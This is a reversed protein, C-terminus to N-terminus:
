NEQKKAEQKVTDAPANATTDKIAKQEEIKEPLKGAEEKVEIVVEEENEKSKETITDCSAFAFAVLTILALKKM